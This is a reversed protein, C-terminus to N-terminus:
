RVTRLLPSQTQAARRSRAGHIVELEPREQKGLTVLDVMSKGFFRAISGLERVSLNVHGNLRDSLQPRSVGIVKALTEQSVRHRGMLARINAAVIEQADLASSDPHTPLAM